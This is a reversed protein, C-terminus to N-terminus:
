FRQEKKLLEIEMEKKGIVEVAKLYKERYEEKEKREAKNDSYMRGDKFANKWDSLTSVAVDNAAAVEGLSKGDMLDSLCKIRFRDTYTKKNRGM